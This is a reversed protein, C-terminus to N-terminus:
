DLSGITERLLFFFVLGSRSGDGNSAESKKNSGISSIFVVLVVFERAELRFFVGLRSLCRTMCWIELVM